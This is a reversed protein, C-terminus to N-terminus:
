SSILLCCSIFTQITNEELFEKMMSLVLLKFCQIKENSVNWFVCKQNTQVFQLCFMNIAINGNSGVLNECMWVVDIIKYNYHRISRKMQSYITGLVTLVNVQLSRNLIMQIVYVVYEEYHIIEKIARSGHWDITLWYGEVSEESKLEAPHFYELCGVIM